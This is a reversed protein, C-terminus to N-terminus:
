LLPEQSWDESPFELNQKLGYSIKHFIGHFSPHEPNVQAVIPSAIVYTIKGFFLQRINVSLIAKVRHDSTCVIPSAILCDQWFLQCISQSLIVKQSSSKKLDSVIPPDVSVISNLETLEQPLSHISKLVILLCPIM